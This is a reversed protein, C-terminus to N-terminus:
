SKVGSSKFQWKKDIASLSRLARGKVDTEGTDNQESVDETNWRVSTESDVIIEIIFPRSIFFSCTNITNWDSKYIGLRGRNSTKNSSKNIRTDFKTIQPFRCHNSWNLFSFLTSFQGVKM